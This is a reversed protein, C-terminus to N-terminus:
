ADTADVGEPDPAANAPRQGHSLLFRPGRVQAGVAAVRARLEGDATIVVCLRGAAARALDAVTDDGSGPAAVVRVRAAPTVARASGEVVLAVELPPPLGPLGAVAVAALEDRLRATAAVRDRWWGDPRSGVVNAADVIVLPEV